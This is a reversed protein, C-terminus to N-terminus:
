QRTFTSPGGGMFGPIILTNGSLNYSYTQPAFQENIYADTMGAQRFIDTLQSITIWGVTSGLRAALEADLYIDTFTLVLDSGNDTYTGKYADVGNQILTFSGNSLTIGDGNTALWRGNLPSDDVKNDCSVFALGVVLAVVLLALSVSFKKM